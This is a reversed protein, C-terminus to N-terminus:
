PVNGGFAFTFNFQHIPLRVLCGPRVLPLDPQDDAYLTQLLELNMYTDDDMVILKDPLDMNNSEYRKLVKYLGHIPRRQACMWGVASKKKELWPKSAFHNRMYMLFPYKQVNLKQYRCFDVINFVQSTKLKVGCYPDGDDDETANFWYRVSAHAGFSMQQAQMLNKRQSSGISLLDVGPKASSSQPPSSLISAKATEVGGEGSFAFQRGCSNLMGLQYVFLSYVGCTFFTTVRSLSPAFEQKSTGSTTTSSM